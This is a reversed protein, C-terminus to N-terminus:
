ALDPLNSPQCAWNNFDPKVEFEIQAGAGQISHLSGYIVHCSEYNVKLTLCYRFGKRQNRLIATLPGAM